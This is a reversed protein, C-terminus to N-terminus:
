ALMGGPRKEALLVGRVAAELKRGLEKGGNDSGSEKRGSGDESVTISVYTDGGGQSKVGLKGDPGRHLPMIAEPGAEAFVGGKAFTFMKPSDYVNNAYQSLSPSDYVGGKANPKFASVISSIFGSSKASKLLGAVADQAAFRALEDAMTGLLDAFSLKGTRVFKAITDELSNFVSTWGEYSRKAANAVNDTYDEMAATAGNKWDSQAADIDATRKRYAAVEKGYTDEAVSLYRKYDDDTLLGNRKDRNLSQRQEIFKDEIENLGAQNDNFKQGRGVGAVASANQRAIANLYDQAAEKADIYSQEVKKIAAQTQISNVRENTATDSRIKNLAIQADALKQANEIQDTGTAHEKQLRAIEQQLAAEQVAGNAKILDAKKAFYTRDDILNASRQADLVKEQNAYTAITADANKKIQDLDSALRAKALAAAKAANQKAQDEIFAKARAAADAAEKAERAVEEKTKTKPAAVPPPAMLAKIQAKTDAIKKDLDATLGEPNFLRGSASKKKEELEQLDQTLHKVKVSTSSFEDTFLFAGLAGFSTWVAALKGSETYAEKIAGIIKTFAPIMDSGIKVGLGGAQTKLEELQDNFKDADEAMDKTIGSLTKGKEIMAGINKGGEALLPATVQWSKGLAAAGLAARTQPDDIAVFIDALQKFAEVPDKATIGLARFKEGNKGMNESLKSIAKAVGDLDTGSQKSALSLGSLNEVSIGTTKSLDNLHDAADISKIIFGGLAVTAVTAVAAAAVFGAKIRDGIVQGRQYAETLRLTANASKLQEESAGRAALKYLEAQRTSKGLTANQVELRQIYRDISRSSRTSAQEASDGLEKISRKAKTVGAEVGSANATIDIQAKLAM